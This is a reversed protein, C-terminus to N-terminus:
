EPLPSPKAEPTEPFMGREALQDWLMELAALMAGPLTASGSNGGLPAGAWLAGTFGDPATYARARVWMRSRGWRGAVDEPGLLFDVRCSFTQELEACLARVEAYTPGTWGKGNGTGREGKENLASM